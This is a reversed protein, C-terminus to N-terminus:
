GSVRRILEALYAPDRHGDPTAIVLRGGTALTAFLEWVSVDFTAPTKYLVGDGAAIPHGHQM